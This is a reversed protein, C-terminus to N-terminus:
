TVPIKMVIKTGAGPTTDVTLVGGMAVARQQMNRLGNGQKTHVPDFGNGNDSVQLELLGGDASIFVDIHNCNSYKAANNVAEKFVLYIEKRKDIPLKIRALNDAEQVQYTIDLPELIESLFEKMKVFLSKMADNGPNIAWVIDGMSEMIKGSNIKIKELQMKELATEGSRNLAMNSNINISSLASGIDDHLDRAIDNRLKEMEVM